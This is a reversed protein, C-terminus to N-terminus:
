YLILHQLYSVSVKRKLSPDQGLFAVIRDIAAESDARVEESNVILLQEPKFHRLWWEIQYAYLGRRISGRGLDQRCTEPPGPPDNNYEYCYSFTCVFCDNWSPLGEPLKWPRYPQSAPDPSVIWSTATSTSTDPPGMVKAAKSIVRWGQQFPGGKAREENLIQRLRPSNKDPRAETLNSATISPMRQQGEYSCGFGRLLRIEEAVEAAFSGVSSLDKHRIMNWGSLARQVPDKLLIVLKADPFADAIRCAASPIHMYDPTADIYTAEDDQQHNFPNVFSAFDSMAVRDFYHVEKIVDVKRKLKIDNTKIGGKAQPRQPRIYPHRNVLQDFM